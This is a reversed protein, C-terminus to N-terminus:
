GEEEAEEDRDEKIDFYADMIREGIRGSIPYRGSEDGMNPVLVAFAVEPEDFPAYGALTLNVTEYHETEGDEGEIYLDNEATGTKGAPNYDKDEFYSYGTGDPTQFVRRFGEQVREIYDQDMQIRNLVETNMSEYLPGVQGDYAVPQRIEKVLHPRVRYGDNAITAMYQALQMTTYTDYQGIAFDMLLGPTVGSGGEFGTSEFPFDIGTSVGLGFQQFYNRMEQWASSDFSITSRKPLPHRTEGGMRMAIYFMYVNSSVQLAEYDNVWGHNVLSAKVQGNALMLPEDYFSQGPSIVGSQYGALMTAGKIVSGPRHADYLTKLAASNFEDDERDYTQGSVALLEGTQPDMVVAMADQLHRNSYPDDAIAAALEEQVIQDVQQQFEMDITLVLDKGRQGEVVTETNVVNGNQDTTYQIQEKRGRLVNEYQEELGSTGVRDNRSYGRTLYYEELEAPIGQDQSTINGLLQNFTSNDYPYERNWDTTANVGPLKDLNEAVRAYEEMTVGENKVIHPTLSYAQDLENKIAIIQKQEGSLNSIKEEPIQDLVANYFEANDMDAAEEAPVLSELEEIEEDSQKLYWYEKKNRVTINDVSDQPMAIYQALQEAVELRDEATM